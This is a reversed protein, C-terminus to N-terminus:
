KRLAPDLPVALYVCDVSLLGARSPHPDHHLQGDRMVVMHHFGRPSKGSALYLGEPCFNGKLCLMQFGRSNFAEEVADWFRKVDGEAETLATSGGRFCGVAELSIGFLSAVAAETCNGSINKERDALRTQTIWRDTTM